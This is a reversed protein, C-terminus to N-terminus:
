LIQIITRKDILDIQLMLWHYNREFSILMRFQDDITFEDIDGPKRLM